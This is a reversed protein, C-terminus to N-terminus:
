TVLKGWKRTVFSNVEGKRAKSNPDNTFYGQSTEITWNSAERWLIQGLNNAIDGRLKHEQLLM